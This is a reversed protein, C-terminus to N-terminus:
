TACCRPATTSCTRSKAESPGSREGHCRRTIPKQSGHWQQMGIWGVSLRSFRRTRWICRSAALSSRGFCDSLGALAVLFSLASVRALCRRRPGWKPFTSESGWRRGWTPSSVVLCSACAEVSRARTPWTGHVSWRADIRSVWSPLEIMARSTQRHLQTSPTWCRMQVGSCRQREGRTARGSCRCRATSRSICGDFGRTKGRWSRRAHRLLRTWCVGRLHRPSDRRTAHRRSASRASCTTSSCRRPSWTVRRTSAGRAWTAWPHCCSPTAWRQWWGLM